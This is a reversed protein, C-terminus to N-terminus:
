QSCNVFNPKPLVWDTAGFDFNWCGTGTVKVVDWGSLDQNFGKTDMFMGNMETVNSVDWGSIDPILNGDNMWMFMGRMNEVKGTDWAGIGVPISKAQFFTKAMNTVQSTDWKSLDLNECGYCTYFLMEMKQVKSVDWYSIDLLPNTNLYFRGIDFLRTMDTVNSVDWSRLDARIHLQDWFGSPSIGGLNTVFTTIVRNILYNGFEDKQNAIERILIDDVILYPIGNVHAIDGPKAFETAVITIGNEAYKYLKPEFIATVSQNATLAIQIPNEASELAGTWKVFNWNESPIATLSITSGSDYESISGGFIEQQTVSGEGEIEVTLQYQIKSFNATLSTNSTLTITRPNQTNGDSWQTFVYNAQANATITISSGATFSGGSTDVSGGPGAIVSLRFKEAVEQPTNTDEKSCSSLLLSLFVLPFFWSKM